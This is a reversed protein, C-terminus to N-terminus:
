PDFQIECGYLAVVQVYGVQVTTVTELAVGYTKTFIRLRVEAVRTTKHMLHPAGQVVPTRGDLQRALEFRTLQVTQVLERGRNKSAAKGLPTGQPRPQTYM